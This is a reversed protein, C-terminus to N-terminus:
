GSGSLGRWGLIGSWIRFEEFGLGYRDESVGSDMCLHGIAGSLRCLGLAKVVALEIGLFPGPLNGPDQSM